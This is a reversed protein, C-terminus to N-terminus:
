EPKEKLAADIAKNRNGLACWAAGAVFGVNLAIVGVIIAIM